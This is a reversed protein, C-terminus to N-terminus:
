HSPLLVKIRREDAELGCSRHSHIVLYLLALVIFIPFLLAMLLYIPISGLVQRVDPVAIM